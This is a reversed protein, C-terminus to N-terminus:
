DVGFELFRSVPLFWAEERCKMGLLYKCTKYWFKECWSIAFRFHRQTLIPIMPPFSVSM